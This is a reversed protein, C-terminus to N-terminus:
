YNMSGEKQEPLILVLSLTPLLSSGLYLLGPIGATTELFTLAATKTPRIAQHHLVNLIFIFDANDKLYPM